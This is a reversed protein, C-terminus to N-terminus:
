HTCSTSTATLTGPMSPDGASPSTYSASTTCTYTTGDYVITSSWSTAVLNLLHESTASGTATQSTFSVTGTVTTDTADTVSVSLTGGSTTNSFSSSSINTLQGADNFTFSGSIRGTLIDAASTSMQVTYDTASAPEQITFATTPYDVLTTQHDLPNGQAATPVSVTLGSASWDFTGAITDDVSGGYHAVYNADAAMSDNTGSSAGEQWEPIFVNGAADTACAHSTSAMLFGAYAMVKVVAPASTDVPTAGGSSSGGCSTAALALGLVITILTKKM